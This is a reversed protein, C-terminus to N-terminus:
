AVRSVSKYLPKQYNLSVQRDRRAAAYRLLRDINSVEHLGKLHCLATATNCLRVWFKDQPPSPHTCVSLNYIM